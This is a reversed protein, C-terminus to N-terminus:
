GTLASSEYDEPRPNLDWGGWLCKGMDSASEQSAAIAARCPKALLRSIRLTMAHTCNRNM